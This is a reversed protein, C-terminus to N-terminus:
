PIMGCEFMKNVIPAAVRNIFALRMQPENRLMQIAQQERATKPAGKQVWLQECTTQQYKQVVNDAIMDLIPFQAGAVGAFFLAVGLALMTFRKMM